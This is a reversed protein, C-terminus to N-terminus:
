PSRRREAPTPRATARRRRYFTARPMDLAACAAQVGVQEALGATASM